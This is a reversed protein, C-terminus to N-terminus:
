TARIECQCKVIILLWLEVLLLSADSLLGLLITSDTEKRGALSVVSIVAAVRFVDIALSFWGVM